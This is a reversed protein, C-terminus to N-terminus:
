FSYGLGMLIVDTDRNYTSAIRNWSTRLYLQPRLQIAATATVVASVTTNSAEGPQPARYRDISFYPGVGAGLALRKDFFEHVLWAQGIVGDRRILRADGENLWSISWDFHPSVGHRFEIARASDHQSDFSNVITQGLFLTIQNTTTKGIQPPSVTPTGSAAPRELQYGIGALLATTNFSNHTAVHNLRAQYIWGDDTYYTAALSSLAGLGHKDSYQTGIGTTNYYVYPGVGAALSLHRDLAQTQLWFQASQGDRHNHPIHGENLWSLSFATHESLSQRYDLEWSYSHPADAARLTGALLSLEQASSSFHTFLLIGSLAMSRILM